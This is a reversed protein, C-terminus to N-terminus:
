SWEPRQWPFARPEDLPRSPCAFSLILARRPEDTRNPGAYHLTRGAHVTAGGLPLPCAVARASADEDAVALGHADPHILRHPLVPLRHSGPRFWMCGNDPTVAQLPVWVSIARHESAPDWYAEDQHWPTEAGDRAPKRIAHTGTLRADTGLLRRAIRLASRHAATHRLGPAHQDPSLVQPLQPPTDAGGALELRDRAPVPAGPAFLRDYVARLRALEAAPTFRELALFGQRGFHHREAETLPEADDTPM